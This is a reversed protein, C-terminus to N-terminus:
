ATIISESNLATLHKMEPNILSVAAVSPLNLFHEAEDWEIDAPYLRLLPLCKNLLTCFHLTAPYPRVDQCGLSIAHMAESLTAIGPLYNISYMAATQAIAPLFGPSTIFHVGAAHCDELQQISVINGAGIRLFPFAFLIERLLACDTTNVEVVSFGANSVKRLRELLLSDVDLTIIVSQTGIIKDMLM